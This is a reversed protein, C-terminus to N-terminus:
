HTFRCAASMPHITTRDSAARMLIQDLAHGDQLRVAALAWRPWLPLRAFPQLHARRGAPPPDLGEVMPAM